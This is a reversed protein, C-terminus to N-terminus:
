YRRHRLCVLSTLGGLTIIAVASPEPVPILTANV